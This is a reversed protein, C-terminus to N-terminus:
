RLALIEKKPLKTYRAIFALDLGDKLMAKATQLIGKKVGKEMGKEMGKKEVFEVTHAYDSFYKMEREYSMLEEEKFNSIKAIEFLQRFEAKGFSSPKKSLRHGNKLTFLLRDFDSKCQESAFAKKFTFDLTFPAFRGQLAPKSKDITRKELM